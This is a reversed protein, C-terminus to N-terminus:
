KWTVSERNKLKTGYYVGQQVSSVERSVVMIRFNYTQSHINNEVFRVYSSGLQKARDDSTQEDVVLVLNIRWSKREITADHVLNHAKVKKLIAAKKEVWRKGEGQAPSPATADRSQGSEAIRFAAGVDIDWPLGTREWTTDDATPWGRGRAYNSAIGNLPYFNQRDLVLWIAGHRGRFFYVFYGEGKPNKSSLINNAILLETNKANNIIVGRAIIEQNQACVGVTGIALVLFAASLLRLGRAATVVEELLWLFGEFLDAQDKLPMRSRASLASKPPPTKM